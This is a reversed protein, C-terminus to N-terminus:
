DCVTRFLRQIVVSVCCGTFLKESSLSAKHHDSIHRSFIGFTYNETYIAPSSAAPVHQCTLKNHLIHQGKQLLKLCNWKSAFKAVLFNRQCLINQIIHSHFMHSRELHTKHQCIGLGSELHLSM